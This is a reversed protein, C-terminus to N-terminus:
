RKKKQTQSWVLCLDGLPKGIQVPTPTEEATVFYSYVDEYQNVAYYLYQRQIVGAELFWIVPHFYKVIDLYDQEFGLKLLDSQQMQILATNAPLDMVEYFPLNRMPALGGILLTVPAVGAFQLLDQMVLEEYLADSGTTLIVFGDRIGSIPFADGTQTQIYERQKSVEEDSFPKLM